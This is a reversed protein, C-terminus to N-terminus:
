ALKKYCILAVNFNHSIQDYSVISKGDVTVGSMNALIMRKSKCFQWWWQQVTQDYAVGRIPGQKAKNTTKYDM